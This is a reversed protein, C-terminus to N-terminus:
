TRIGLLEKLTSVQSLKAATSTKKMPLASLGPEHDECTNRLIVLADVEPLSPIINWNELFSFVKLLFEHSPSAEKRSRSVFRQNPNELHKPWLVDYLFVLM